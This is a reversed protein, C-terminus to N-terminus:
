GVPLTVVFTAGPGDGTALELDGGQARALSRALALGLGLGSSRDASSPRHFPRFLARRAQRSIGPGNDAVEIRADDGDRSVTVRLRRQDASRTHKEANDLLNDLIQALADDDFLASVTDGPLDLEIKLGAEELRRRSREVARTMADNLDGAVPQTVLAGRELRALDLMNSVVRGLRDAEDRVTSAYDRGRAPDGLGEALMESHLRLGSLPTRLEHAAAAAFAARQRALRDTQLLIWVVAAAAVIVAAAVMLFNRHFESVIQRGESAAQDLAETSTTALAWGTEGVLATVTETAASAAPLFQVSRSSGELWEAVAAPAVAFGQLVIGAPTHVERLAALSPGTGLVMTYWRLPRVRVAVQGVGASDRAPASALDELGTISAYVSDALAIQEWEYRSMTLVREDDGPGVDDAVVVASQLEGLFDCLAAYDTSTTLEPFRDSLTPLTVTGAEDMQFHARVLPDAAGATLPSPTVSLGEAAGRPDTYLTQYHFFPRASETSRLDELRSGLRRAERDMDADLLMLARETAADARRAAERSGTIYWAATPLLAAIAILVAAATIRQHTTM